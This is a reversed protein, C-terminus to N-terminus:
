SSLLGRLSVGCKCLQDHEAFLKQKGWVGCYHISQVFPATPDHIAARFACVGEPCRFRMNHLSAYVALAYEDCEFWFGKADFLSKNDLYESKIAQLEDTIEPSPRPIWLLGANPATNVTVPLSKSAAEGFRASDYEKYCNFPGDCALDEALFHRRIIIDSDIYMAPRDLLSYLLFKANHNSEFERQHVTVGKHTSPANTLLHLNARPYWLKLSAIQHELLHRHCRVYFDEAQPNVPKGPPPNLRQREYSILIFDRIEGLARLM